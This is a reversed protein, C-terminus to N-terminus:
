LTQVLALVADAFRTRVFAARETWWTTVGSLNLEIAVFSGDPRRMLDVCVYGLGIDTMKRSLQRLAVKDADPFEFLERHRVDPREMEDRYIALRRFGDTDLAGALLRESIPRKKLVFSILIRGNFLEAKYTNGDAPNVERCVIDNNFDWDGYRVQGPTIVHFGGGGATFSRKVILKDVGWTNFLTQAAAKSNVQMWEMTPFGVQDLAVLQEVRTWRRGGFCKGPLQQRVSAPLEFHSLVMGYGALNLDTPKVGWVVDAEHGNTVLQDAVAQYRSLLSEGANCTHLLAKM